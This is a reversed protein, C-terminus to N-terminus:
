ALQKVLEIGLEKACRKADKEAEDKNAKWPRSEITYSKGIIWISWRWEGHLQFLTLEGKM